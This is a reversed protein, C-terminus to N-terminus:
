RRGDPPPGPPLGKEVRRKEWKQVMADFKPAQDVTLLVRIQALGNKRIAEFKPRTDDQLKDMEAKRAQLLASVKTKQDPTLKLERDLKRLFTQTPDKLGGHALFYRFGWAGGALGLAIGLVFVVVFKLTPNSM